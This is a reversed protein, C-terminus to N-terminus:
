KFAPVTIACNPVLSILLFPTGLPTALIPSGSGYKNSHPPISPGIGSSPLDAFPTPTTFVAGSSSPTTRLTGRSILIPSSTYGLMAM